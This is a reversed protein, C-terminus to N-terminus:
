EENYIDDEKNDWWDYNKSLLIVDKSMYKDKIKDLVKQREKEELMDLEKLIKDSISM